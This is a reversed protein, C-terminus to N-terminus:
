TTKLPYTLFVIKLIPKNYIFKMTLPKTYEKHSRPTKQSIAIGRLKEFYACLICLPFNYILHLWEAEHFILVFKTQELTKNLFTTANSNFVM